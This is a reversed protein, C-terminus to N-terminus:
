EGEYKRIVESLEPNVNGEFDKSFCRGGGICTFVYAENESLGCEERMIDWLGYCSLDYIMDGEEGNDIIAQTFGNWGEDEYEEPLEFSNKCMDKVNEFSTEEDYREKSIAEFVMGTAGKMGSEYEFVDTLVKIENNERDYNVVKNYTTRKAEM